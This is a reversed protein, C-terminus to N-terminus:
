GDITVKNNKIPEPYAFIRITKKSKDDPYHLEGGGLQIFNAMVQQGPSLNIMFKYLSDASPPMNNMFKMGYKFEIDRTHFQTTVLWGEKVVTDVIVTMSDIYRGLSDILFHEIKNYYKAQISDRSATEPSSFYATKYDDLLQFLHKQTTSYQQEDLLVKKPKEGCGFTLFLLTLFCIFTLLQPRITL